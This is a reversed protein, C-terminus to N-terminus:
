AQACLTVTRAFSEAIRRLPVNRRRALVLNRAFNPDDLRRAAVGPASTEAATSPLIAVGLGARVLAVASAMYNVEYAPTVTLGKAAFAREVQARVSSSQNTMILPHKILETVDISPASELAEGVAFVAQLHDDLLPECLLDGDSGDDVCIGFDVKGQRVLERVRANLGDELVFAADPRQAKFRRMAEPLLSAACSPLCALRVTCDARRVHEKANVVAAELDNVLQLFAPLLERGADSLVVIRSTRDFLRLELAEEMQRIRSTLAPQSLNLAEAARSFNGLSALTVFSRVQGFSIRLGRLLPPEGLDTM